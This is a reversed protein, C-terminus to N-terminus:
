EELLLLGRTVKPGLIIRLKYVVIDPGAYYDLSQVQNLIEPKGKSGQHAEKM